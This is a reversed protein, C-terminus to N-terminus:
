VPYHIPPARLPPSLLYYTSTLKTQIYQRFITRLAPPVGLFLSVFLFLFLYTNFSDIKKVVSEPSVKIESDHNDQFDSHNHTARTIDSLSYAAHMGFTHESMSSSSVEDHEMHIHLKFLQGFIMAIALSAILVYQFFSNNTLKRM